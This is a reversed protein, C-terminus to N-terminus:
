EQLSVALDIWQYAIGTHRGNRVAGTYRFDYSPFEIRVVVQEHVCHSRIYCSNDTRRHRGSNKKAKQSLLTSKKACM